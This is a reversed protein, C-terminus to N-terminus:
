KKFQLESPKPPRNLLSLSAGLEKIYDDKSCREDAQPDDCIVSVVYGAGFLSFSLDTSSFSRTILYAAGLKPLTPRSGRKVILRTFSQPPEKLVLKKKAGSVRILITEDQTTTTFYAEPQGYLKLNQLADPQNIVLVPFRVADIEQRVAADVDGVNVLRLRPSTRDKELPRAKLRQRVDEWDIPPTIERVPPRDKNESILGYTNGSYLAACFVVVGFWIGLNQINKVRMEGDSRFLIKLFKQEDIQLWDIEGSDNSSYLCFTGCPRQLLRPIVFSSSTIAM